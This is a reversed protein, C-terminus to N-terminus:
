LGKRSLRFWATEGATMNLSLIGDKTPEVKGSRLNTVMAEFPLRFDFRGTRLAHVSVFDGNMDGQLGVTASPVYANADRALRNILAPTM